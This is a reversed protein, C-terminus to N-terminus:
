KYYSINTYKNCVKSKSRSPSVFNFFAIFAICLEPFPLFLFIIYELNFIVVYM